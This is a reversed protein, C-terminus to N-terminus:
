LKTRSNSITSICQLGARKHKSNFHYAGPGRGSIEFYEASSQYLRLVATELWVAPMTSLLGVTRGAMRMPLQQVAGGDSWPEGACPIYRIGPFSITNAKTSGGGESKEGIQGLM